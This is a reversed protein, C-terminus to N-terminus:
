HREASRSGRVRKTIQYKLYSVPSDVFNVLPMIFRNAEFIAYDWPKPIDYERVRLFNEAVPLVSRDRKKLRVVEDNTLPIYSYVGYKYVYELLKILKSRKRRRYAIPRPANMMLPNTMYRMAGLRQDAQQANALEGEEFRWDIEKLKAPDVAVVDAYSRGTYIGSNRSLYFDGSADLHLDLGDVTNQRLFTVNVFSRPELRCLRQLEEVDEDDCDRVFQIDDQVFMIFPADGAADLAVQMNYYLGGHRLDDTSDRRICEVEAPLGDLVAVTQADTSADDVVVIRFQDAHRLASQVCLALHGARNYSFIFIAPRNLM